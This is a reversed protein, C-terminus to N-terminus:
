KNYFTSIVEQLNLQELKELTPIGTNIDWNFYKYYEQKMHELDLTINTLPGEKLPPKGEVRLPLKINEPKIGERINFSHRLTQIREGIDLYEKDSFSWGTAANLWEFLPLKGGTELGFICVGAANGVQIYKSSIAQGMIKAPNSDYQNKKSILLPFNKTEPYKNDIGMLQQTTYSTITHRGPTPETIYALGYGPDLRPDHMPLEQNGTHMAFEFADNGIKQAAKQVGDALVDGFGERKIIKETLKVIAETNGWKLNLGDVDTEKLIGQEFCEMAFAIASGVSITDIGARNCLDNLYFISSLDNNLCLAGFSALTEYEPKHSELINYKVDNVRIIGGCGLPCSYCHYRKVQYKIVKDDSLLSSNTDIPFNNYGSGKWNKVPSDGGENAFGTIGCTGYQLLILHFLEGPQKPAFPSIRLFKGTLNLIKGLFNNKFFEVKKFRKLFEQNLRTIKEKDFVPLTTNGKIAIAKLKKSGMLSGLGSRAAIRGRDNVIGSIYSLNEGATGICAVHVKETGWENKIKEETEVTDLGWLHSADKLEIKDNISLYLPTDSKGKIFIADFGARKISQSFFGGSNSDGWGGTLPSKGVVMYRGSFLTGTGTLLGSCFGLISQESLPDIGAPQNDFIYKAGLGYGGIFKQYVSDPLEKIEISRNSLDVTLIKGTYGFAM